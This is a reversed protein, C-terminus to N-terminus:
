SQARVRREERWCYLIPVVLMTVVEVLMGGFSPIAMPILVDAGRGTATLVPLLALLTTATTMLCPRVRRTGALLATARVGEVDPTMEISGPVKWNAGRYLDAELGTQATLAARVTAAAPPLGLLRPWDMLVRMATQTLMEAQRLLDRAATHEAAITLGRAAEVATLGAITQATSCLSFILGLMGVVDDPARGAFVQTVGGPRTSDIDVATVRGAHTSLRVLIRGAFDANLKPNNANM